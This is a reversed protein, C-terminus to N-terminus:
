GPSIRGGAGCGEFGNAEMWAEYAPALASGPVLAARWDPGAPRLLLLWGAGYCDRNIPEARATLPENVAEVRGAFGARVSGVWKASEVTAIARGAEFPRGARKPTVVLVERALAVGVVTMGARLLGEGAEAYWVHRPVDYLRDEPFFCGRVTPM